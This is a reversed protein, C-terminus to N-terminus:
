ARDRANGRITRGTSSPLQHVDSWQLPSGTFSCCLLFSTALRVTYGHRLLQLARGTEDAMVNGLRSISGVKLLGNIRLSDTVRSSYSSAKLSLSTCKRAPSAPAREVSSRSPLFRSTLIGAATLWVSDRRPGDLQASPSCMGRVFWTSRSILLRLSRTPGRRRRLVARWWRRPRLFSILRLRGPPRRPRRRSVRM